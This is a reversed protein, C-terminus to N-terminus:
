PISGRVIEFVTWVHEVSMSIARMRGPVIDTTDLAADDCAQVPLVRVRPKHIADKEADWEEKCGEDSDSCDDCYDKYVELFGERGYGMDFKLNSSQSISFPITTVRGRTTSLSSSPLSIKLFALM